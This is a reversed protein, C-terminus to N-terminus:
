NKYVWTTNLCNLILIFITRILYKLAYESNIFDVTFTSIYIHFFLRTYCDTHFNLRCKSCLVDALEASVVSDM